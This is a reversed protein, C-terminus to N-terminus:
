FGTFENSLVRGFGVETPANQDYRAGPWKAARTEYEEILSQLGKVKQSRREEIDDAKVDTQQAVKALMMRLANAAAQYVNHLNGTIYVQDYDAAFVFEGVYLDSSSPTVTTFNEDQFTPSGEWDGCISRWVRRQVASATRVEVVTLEGQRVTARVEDLLDQLDQESFVASAGSPDNVLKRLWARLDSTTSRIPM